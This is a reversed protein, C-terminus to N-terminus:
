GNSSHTGPQPSVRPPHYGSHAPFTLPLRWIVSRAPGTQRERDAFAVMDKSRVAGLDGQHFIAIILAWATFFSVRSYFLESEVHTIAHPKYEAIEWHAGNVAVGLM